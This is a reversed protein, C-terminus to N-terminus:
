LKLPSNQILLINQINASTNCEEDKIIIRNEGLPKILIRNQLVDRIDKDVLKFYIKSRKGFSLTDLLSQTITIIKNTSTRTNGDGVNSKKKVTEGKEQTSENLVKLKETTASLRKALKINQTQKSIRNKIKIARQNKQQEVLTFLNILDKERGNSYISM